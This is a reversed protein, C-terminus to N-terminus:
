AAESAEQTPAPTAEVYLWKGDAGKMEIRGTFAKKGEHPPWFSTKFECGGNEWFLDFHPRNGSSDARPALRMFVHAM